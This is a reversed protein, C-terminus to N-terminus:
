GKSVTGAARYLTPRTVKYRSQAQGKLANYLQKGDFSKLIADIDKKNIAKVVIDSKPPKLKVLLNPSTVFTLEPRGRSEEDKLIASVTANLADRACLVLIDEYESETLTKGSADALMAIAIAPTVLISEGEYFPLCFIGKAEQEKVWPEDSTDLDLVGCSSIGSRIDSWGAEGKVAAMVSNKGELEVLEVGVDSLLDELLLKGMNDECFVPKGAPRLLQVRAGVMDRIVTVPLSQDSDVPKTKGDMDMLYLCDITPRTAFVISHTSYLFVVKPFCRELQEWIEISRAENLHLEPEDVLFIFNQTSSTFLFASLILIQREGDSLNRPKGNRFFKLQLPGSLSKDESVECGLIKGIHALFRNKNSVPRSWNPRPGIPDNDFWDVVKQKFQEEAHADQRDLIGLTTTLFNWISLQDPRPSPRRPTPGSLILRTLQADFVDDGTLATTSPSRDSPMGLQIQNAAELTRGSRAAYLHLLRVGPSKALLFNRVEDM